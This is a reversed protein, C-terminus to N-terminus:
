YGMNLNDAPQVLWPFQSRAVPVSAGTTGNVLKLTHTGGNGSICFRGLDTITIPSPGVTFRLGLWGNFDNRLTDLTLVSTVFATQGSAAPGVGFFALGALLAIVLRLSAWKSINKWGIWCRLYM